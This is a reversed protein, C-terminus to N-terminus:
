GRLEAAVERELSDVVARFARSVEDATLTREPSQFHIHYGLSRKGAPVKEGTYVDFLLVRNVLPESEIVHQIKAAPVGLDVLISLDRIASPFRGVPMYRPGGGPMADLVNHLALEFIGVPRREIGFRAVVSPHVEGLIGLSLSGAVIRAGRGPHLFPDHFRDYMASIGLEALLNEVIGKIDHLGLSGEEALWHPELRPGGMVGAVMEREEPLDGERPLYIRGAEFIRVPGDEHPENAALVSLMSGRLSTRLYEQQSSMPNALKLTVSASDSGRAKELEERSTASYSIVEQMGAAVLLDKVREILERLPQPQYYPIPTSLMTTPVEDYGIVRAVEEVLDDEINIDSRWYPVTVKLDDGRQMECTFGLSTLVREVVETPFRGGLVKELREMTLLLSPTAQERAPYIDLAGKAVVGGATEQILKTARRLAIPALEPRLGKEFRTTAETSLQLAKATRRNNIPNFNASELLIATTRETMESHAGGIVGGLGLADRADAIALMSNTLKREVGDLCALREGQRARRVIVKGEKVTHFDFAHLPQGYELMVYNTIDVANNIPRMGTKLLRDQLWAPSPGIKVGMVLSATYRYCLDPDAIEVSVSTEIPEGEEQYSADPERVTTGTLAAVEHAIGLVSLCDPRNPTVEIDLIQDGMYDSLAMGVPADKPLVLIGQHNEGTGLEMESCIMGDSVVGRIRAAKLPERKGTHTNFLEAGIKAFAVKQGQAVNPAGCVVQTQEGGSDVTCLTLRDANPHPEVKLVQGVFCGQWGGNTAVEAVETGAMTLRRALEEVPVVIDVYEKLWSLPVKM